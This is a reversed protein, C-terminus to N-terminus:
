SFGHEKHKRAITSALDDLTALEVEGPLGKCLVPELIEIDPRSLIEALQEVAKGGWGYSGIVGTFRLKPRLASVLHAAYIVSPHPGGLVTPTGIVVTAADVLTLALKGLDTVTLNFQEVAVGRDALAGVLHQVMKETSGHMSIYPLAVMNKPAGSVWEDYADVIFAPRTYIPGHSPAILAPDIARVRVLHKEIMKHFPMMIEAYYRKAPEYVRTEDAYLATTALHSGFLDCTFLINDEKLHTVMTEPWHVWPMCIFELTKDGLSLTEGDEVTVLRDEPIDLLDILVGKGKTTALVKAGEYRSLIAPLVGSHDQEAHNAVVYDIRPIDALNAFLVDIKSPDVTDVLVTLESGQVLYANYSTGDPLPILSDFLRRDWDVAGVSYVRDRILRRKV